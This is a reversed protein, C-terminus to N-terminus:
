SKEKSKMNRLIDNLIITNSDQELIPLRTGEGYTGLTIFDDDKLKGVHIFEKGSVCFMGNASIYNMVRVLGPKLVEIDLLTFRKDSVWPEKDKIKDYIWIPIFKSWDDTTIHVHGPVYHFHIDDSKKVEVHNEVVTMVVNENLDKLQTSISIHQEHTTRIKLFADGSLNVVYSENDHCRFCIEGFQIMPKYAPEVYVFARKSSATRRITQWSRITRKTIPFDGRHAADHCTPCIAIMHNKDHTQYKAWPKIHHIETQRNPCGPNACKLGASEKLETIIIQKIKKRNSM